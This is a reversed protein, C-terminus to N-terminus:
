PLPKIRLLPKREHARRWNRALEVRNVTLWERVLSLQRPPLRGAIVRGDRIAILVEDSGYRAHFHPPLHDRFFMEIKIGQFEVIRPM